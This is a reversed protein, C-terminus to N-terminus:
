PRSPVTVVIVGGARNQGFKMEAESGSYYRIEEVGAIPIEKLTNVDGVAVSGVYVVLDWKFPVTNASDTPRLGALPARPPRLFAPRLQQVAEYCNNVKIQTLEEASIVNRDRKIKKPKAAPDQAWAAPAGILLVLSALAVASVVFSVSKM